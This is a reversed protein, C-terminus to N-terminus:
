VEFSLTFEYQYRPIFYTGDIELVIDSPIFLIEGTTLFNNM